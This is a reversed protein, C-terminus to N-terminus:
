PSAATDSPLYGKLRPLLDDMFLHLRSDADRELESPSVPTILRILAGDSRNNKIIADFLLYWKMTWYESAIRRGREEYWYYVLQKAGNREIIARNFPYDAGYSTRDLKTISWGDGPICILPSHPSEGTRQSAYYGVYLNVVKGDFKSYDSLIYDQVALGSEVQPELLSAHGHWDGITAPFTVFQSREPVIESRHSILATTLATGCILLLSAYLALSGTPERNAQAPLRAQDTPLHFAEFFGRGSLRALLYIEFILPLASLIFIIWGEFFHLTEDAMRPGWRDVTV